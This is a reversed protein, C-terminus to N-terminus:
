LFCKTSTNLFRSRRPRHRHDCRRGWRRRPQHHVSPRAQISFFPTLQLRYFLEFATEYDDTFGSGPEDSLVVTTMGAGLVDQDRGPIAGTWALGTGFHHVVASISKSAKGYQAFCALGQADNDDGPNERWLMQDFVLYLGTAHDATGGAFKTFDGDHLWVGAGLRGDLADDSLSWTVGAEAMYLMDAPGGFLTSPGRPGTAIGEQGAGDFLGVGAYISETPYVFASFGFAPDPYSSFVFITPTFGMSSNLFEGGNDVFAFESNADFKGVKLRLKQDLLVHEYWIESIQTRGDADLNDLGQVDGVEDGIGPGAINQFNIFFTGGAWLGLMETDLTLNINLLHRTASGRSIGGDFNHSHDLTFDGEIFIGREELRTRYGGWDGTLRDRELFTQAKEPEVNQRNEPHPPLPLTPNEAVVYSDDALASDFADAQSWAPMAVACLAITSTSYGLVSLKSRSQM